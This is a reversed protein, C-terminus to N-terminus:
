SHYFCRNFHICFKSFFFFFAPSFFVIQEHLFKVSKWGIWDRTFKGRFKKFQKEQTTTAPNGQYMWKCLHSTHTLNCLSISKAGNAIRKSNNTILWLEVSLLFMKTGRHNFSERTRTTKCSAHTRVGVCNLQIVCYPKANHRARSLTYTYKHCRELHNRGTRSHGAIYTLAQLTLMYCRCQSQSHSWLHIGAGNPESHKCTVQKARKSSNSLAIRNLM